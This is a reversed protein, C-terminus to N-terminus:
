GPLTVVTIPRKLRDNLEALQAAIEGLVGIQACRVSAEDRPEFAPTRSNFDERITKADM